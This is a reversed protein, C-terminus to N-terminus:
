ATLDLYRAATKVAYSPDAFRIEEPFTYTNLWDILRKGWSAIIGTQPYHAHADIFGAMILADGYDIIEAQPHATRLDDATGSAIIKGGELLVAGRREYRTAESVPLHFPDGTFALTQGLLLHQNNM